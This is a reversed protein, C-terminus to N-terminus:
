FGLSLGGAGSFLDVYQGVLPLTRAIQFALLPPVANGIQKQVSAHPGVFTFQDPFSQLRAAERESLVRHQGGAYDYHLHCGNGPRNFYTNITYSPRTPHLRGYYTSRSGEGAAFSVRIQELRKSPLERPINKWNGGPPVSRAVELTSNAKLKLPIVISIRSQVGDFVPEITGNHGDALPAGEPIDPRSDFLRLIEKRFEEPLRDFNELLMTLQNRTLGYARAAEVELAAEAGAEGDLVRRTLAALAGIM